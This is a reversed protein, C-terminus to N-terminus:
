YNREHGEVVVVRRGENAAAARARGCATPDLREQPGDGRSLGVLDVPAGSPEVRARDNARFVLWADVGDDALHKQGMGDLVADHPALRYFVPCSAATNM